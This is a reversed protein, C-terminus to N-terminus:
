GDELRLRLRTLAESLRATWDDPHRPDDPRRPREDPPLGRLMRCIANTRHTRNDAPETDPLRDYIYSAYAPWTHAAAEAAQYADTDGQRALHIVHPLTITWEEPDHTPKIDRDHVAVAHKGCPQVMHRRATAAIYERLAQRPLQGINAVKSVYKALENAATTRDTIDTMWLVYSDTTIQEWLKRLAQIPIYSGDWIAHIHPHWQALEANWTIEMTYICRAVNAKWLPAKRLTAFSRQLRKLQADLPGPRSKLTLILTRPRPYDAIARTIRDAVQATRARGCFPCARHMCRFLSTNVERTRPQLHLHASQCCLALRSAWRTNDRSPVEALAAILEDRQKHNRSHIAEQLPTQLPLWTPWGPPRHSDAAEAVM